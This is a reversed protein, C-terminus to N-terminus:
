LGGGRPVRAGFAHRDHYRKARMAATGIMDPHHPGYHATVRACTSRFTGSMGETVSFGRAPKCPFMRMWSAFDRAARQLNTM